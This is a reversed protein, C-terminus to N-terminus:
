LGFRGKTACYNQFVESDTLARNYVQVNSISGSFYAFSGGGGGAGVYFANNTFFLNGASSVPVCDLYGNTYIKINTNDFTGCFYYWTNLQPLTFTAAGVSAAGDHSIYISMATPYFYLIYTEKSVGNDNWTGCIYQNGSLSSFNIWAGISVSQTLNNLVSASVSSSAYQSSGNFNLIGANSSSFSPSSNLSLSTNNGSIDLWTSSGSKYSNFNAADSQFVLGNTVIPPSNKYIAM